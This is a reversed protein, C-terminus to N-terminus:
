NTTCTALADALAQKEPTTVTLAYRTKIQVQKSAYACAYASNPPMWQDASKSGKAMNDHGNVALLNNPDNALAERDEQTLNYAGSQWANELAVVHDIQVKSAEKKSFDIWKGSYPDALQGATVVCSNRMGRVILDRALIDNRTDCGNHDVDKWAPGFQEVRSYKEPPTPNDNVTLNDLDSLSGDPVAGADMSIASQADSQDRERTHGGHQFLIFWSAILLLALTVAMIRAELRDQKDKDSM